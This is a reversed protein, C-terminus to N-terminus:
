GSKKSDREFACCWLGGVKVVMTLFMKQCVIGRIIYGMINLFLCYLTITEVQLFYWSSGYCKFLILYFFIVLRLLEGVALLSGHISHVPM